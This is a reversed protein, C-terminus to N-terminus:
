TSTKRPRTTPPLAEHGSDVGFVALTIILGVGVTVTAVAVGITDRLSRDGM